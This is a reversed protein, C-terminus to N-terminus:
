RSFSQIGFRVLGSTRTTSVTSWTVSLFNLSAGAAAAAAEEVSAASHRDAARSNIMRGAVM